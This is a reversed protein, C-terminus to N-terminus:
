LKTNKNSESYIMLQRGEKLQTNPRVNSSLENWEVIEEFTVDYKDAIDALTEGKSVKHYVIVMDFVPEDVTNDTSDKLVAVDLSTIIDRTGDPYRICFVESTPFSKQTNNAMKKKNFIGKEKKQSFTVENENFTIDYAPIEAGKVLYIITAKPDVKQKEGTRRKLDPTIYINGRLDTHLMYIDRFELVEQIANKKSSMQYFVRDTSIQTITVSLEQGNKLIIKDKQAQMTLSALCAVLLTAIFKM